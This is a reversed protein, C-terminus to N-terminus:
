SAYVKISESSAFYRQLDEHQQSVNDTQGHLNQSQTPENVPQSVHSFSDQQAKYYVPSQSIPIHQPVQLSHVQMTKQQLSLMQESQPQSVQLTQRLPQSLHPPRPLHPPPPVQTQIPKISPSPSPIQPSFGPLSTLQQQQMSSGIPNVPGSTPRALHLVPTFPSMTLSPNGRSNSFQGLRPDNLSPPHLSFQSGSFTTPFPPPTPPLPPQPHAPISGSTYTDHLRSGSSGVSWSYKPDMIPQTALSTMYNNNSSFATESKIQLHSLSNFNNRQPLVLFLLLLCSNIM